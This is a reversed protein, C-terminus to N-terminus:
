YKENNFIKMFANYRDKHAKDPKDGQAKADNYIVMYKGNKSMTAPVEKYDLMNFSGKEEIEKITTKATDNLKETNFEYLEIVVVDSGVLADFRYGTEAGIVDSAMKIGSEPLYEKKHLDKCMQTLGYKSDMDAIKVEDKKVEATPMGCSALSFVTIILLCVAIIKKM